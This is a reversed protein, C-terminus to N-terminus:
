LDPILSVTPRNGMATQNIMDGIRQGLEINQSQQLAPATSAVKDFASMVNILGIMQATQMIILGNNALGLADKNVLALGKQTQALGNQTQALGKHALSLGDTYHQGIANARAGSVNEFASKIAEGVEKNYIQEVQRQNLAGDTNVQQM